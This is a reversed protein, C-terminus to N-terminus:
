HQLSGSILDSGAALGYRKTVPNASPSRGPRRSAGREWSLVGLRWLRDAPRASRVSGMSRMVSGTKRPRWTMGRRCTSLELESVGPELHALVPHIQGAVAELRLGEGVGEPVVVGRHFRLDDLVASSAAVALYRTSDV